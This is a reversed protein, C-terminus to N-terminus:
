VSRKIMGLCMFLGTAAWVFGMIARGGDVVGCPDISVNAAVGRIQPPLQVAECAAVPPAWFLGRATELFGKDATGSAKALQEDAKGKTEEVKATASSFSSTADAPVGTEDVKVACVPQGPAGCAQQETGDQTSVRGSGNGSGAVTGTGKSGGPGVAAGAPGGASGGSGSSPTQGGQGGPAAGAPPNGPQQSTSPPIFNTQPRVPKDATGFCGKVGNVEGVYGPCPPDKSDDPKAPDDTASAQCAAGTYRGRFEISVRYLGQANPQQSVYSRCEPCPAFTEFQKTCGGECVSGSPGPNNPAIFPSNDGISPTRQWGATWNIIDTKGVKGSCAGNPDVCQSGQEVYGTSCQCGGTVPTSNPPCGIGRKVEPKHGRDTWTPGVWEGCKSYAGSGDAWTQM